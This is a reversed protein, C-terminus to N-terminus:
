FVFAKLKGYTKLVSSAFKLDLAGIIEVIIDSSFLLFISLLQLHIKKLFFAIGTSLPNDIQEQHRFLLTKAKTHTRNDVRPQM